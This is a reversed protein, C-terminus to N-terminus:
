SMIGSKCMAVYVCCIFNCICITCISCVKAIISAKKVAESRLIDTVYGAFAYVVLEFNVNANGFPLM